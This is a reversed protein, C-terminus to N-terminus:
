SATASNAAHAEAAAHAKAPSRRKAGSARTLDAPSAIDDIEPPMHAHALKANAPVEGTRDQASEVASAPNM